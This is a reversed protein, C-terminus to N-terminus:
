ELTRKNNICVILPHANFLVDFGADRLRASNAQVHRNALIVPTSVPQSRIFDIVSVAPLGHFLTASPAIDIFGAVTIKRKTLFDFVIDGGRAAGFIWVPQQPLVCDFDLMPINTYHNHLDLQKYSMEEIHDKSIFLFESNGEGMKLNVLVLGLERAAFDTVEPASSFETPWGGLWDRVDTMFEMGRSDKYERMINPLKHINAWSHNLFSDRIYSAEMLRKRLGNAENYEKKIQQWYKWNIYAEKAYLAIYLVSHDHLCLKANRLARWQDGTHHLVGWSYVVDFTGLKRMFSDDLVSGQEITWNQPSGLHKHLWRTAAVSDQDYDFSHVRIAGSLWAAASHIGSGCGIDLFTNGKLDTVQLFALLSDQSIKQREPTYTRLYKRWNRGFTFKKSLHPM